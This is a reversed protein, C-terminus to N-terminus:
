LGFSISVPVNLLTNLTPTNLSRLFAALSTLSITIRDVRLNREFNDIHSLRKYVLQKVSNQANLIHLLQCGKINRHNLFIGMSRSYFHTSFQRSIKMSENRLWRTARPIILSHPIGRNDRNYKQHLYFHVTGYWLSHGQPKSIWHNM